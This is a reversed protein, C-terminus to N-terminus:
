IQQLGVNTLIVSLYLGVVYHVILVRGNIAALVIATRGDDDVLDLRCNSEELLVRVCDVHGAAAAVHLATDYHRKAGSAAARSSNGNSTGRDSCSTSSLEALGCIKAGLRLLLRVSSSNGHRCAHMLPTNGAFDVANVDAGATVLYTIFVQL